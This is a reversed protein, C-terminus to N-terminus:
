RPLVGNLNASLAQTAVATSDYIRFNMALSEPSRAAEIWGDGPVGRELYISVTASEIFAVMGRAGSAVGCNRNTATDKAEIKVGPQIQPIM